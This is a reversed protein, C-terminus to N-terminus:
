ALFSFEGNFVNEVCGFTILGWLACMPWITKLMNIKKYFAVLMQFLMEHSPRESTYFLLIRNENNFPQGVQCYHLWSYFDQFPQSKEFDQDQSKLSLIKAENKLM